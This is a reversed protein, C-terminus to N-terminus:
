ASYTLPAQIITKTWTEDSVHNRYVVGFDVLCSIPGAFEPKDMQWLASDIWSVEGFQADNSRLDQLMIQFWFPHTQVNLNDLAAIGKGDMVAM